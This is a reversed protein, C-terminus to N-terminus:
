LTSLGVGLTYAGLAILWLTAWTRMGQHWGYYPAFPPLLVALAARYRPKARALGIVLAAHAGIEVVLAVGLWYSLLTKL